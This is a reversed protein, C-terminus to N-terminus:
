LIPNVFALDESRVAQFINVIAHAAMLCRSRSTKSRRASGKHLAITACQALTHIVLLDHRIEEPATDTQGLVPIGQKFYEISADLNAM